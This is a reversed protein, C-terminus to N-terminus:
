FLPKQNSDLFPQGGLSLDSGLASTFGPKVWDEYKEKPLGSNKRGTIVRLNHEDYAFTERHQDSGDRGISNWHKGVPNIHDVAYLGEVVEGPLFNNMDADDDIQMDDRLEQWQAPDKSSVKKKIDPLAARRLDLSLTTWRSDLFYLKRRIADSGRFEM